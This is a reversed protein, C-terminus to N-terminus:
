FKVAEREDAREEEIKAQKQDRVSVGQQGSLTTENFAAAIRRSSVSESTGANNIAAQVAKTTKEIEPLRDTIAMFAANVEQSDGLFTRRDEEPLSAIRKVGEVIGVGSLGFQQDLALKTSLAKIRAAATEASAFADDVVALTSTTEAFSARQQQAGEAAQPLARALDEFSFRSAQSGELLANISSEVGVGERGFLNRIQGAAKAGQVPDLLANMGLVSEFESEFGESRAAFLLQRSTARDVGTLSAADDARKILSDLDQPGRAVQRLRRTSEELGILKDGAAERIQNVQSIVSRIFGTATSVASGVSLWAAAFKMVQAVSTTGVAGKRAAANSKM